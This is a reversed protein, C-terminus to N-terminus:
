FDGTSKGIGRKDYRLVVIGRRSLYDALVYFPRHGALFEDRNQPGSGSILLAAPFPGAGEPITLTGSFKASGNKNAFSIEEEKYPYPKAPNQPRRLELVEDSRKFELVVSDQNQSWKGAIASRAPNLTGEYVGSVMDIEFHVAGNQESLKS